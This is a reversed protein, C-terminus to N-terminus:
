SRINNLPLSRKGNREETKVVKKSMNEKEKEKIQAKASISITIIILLTLYSRKM